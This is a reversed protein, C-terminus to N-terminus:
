EDGQAGPGFPRIWRGRGRTRRPPRHPPELMEPSVQIENVRGLFEVLIRVRESPRLPGNFVGMLGQLPGSKIQVLDGQRFPHAPIGGIENIAQLQEKIMQIAEDPVIAPVNDFGVVQRLGPTWRLVSLPVVDWDCRCFLYGPFLPAPPTVKSPSKRPPLMPLYVTIQWHQEWRKLAGALTKEARPLSNLAYWHLV